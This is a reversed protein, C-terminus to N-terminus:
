KDKFGIKINQEDWKEDVFVEDVPSKKDLSIAETASKAM